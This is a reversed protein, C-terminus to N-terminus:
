VRKGSSDFGVACTPECWGGKAFSLFLCLAHLCEIADKGPFLAGDIRQIGCIHTLRYGGEEKILKLNERTLQLSKLEVKWKDCVLDVHEIVTGNHEM